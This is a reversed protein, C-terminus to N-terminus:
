WLGYDTSLETLIGIQLLFFVYDYSILDVLLLWAYWLNLGVTDCFYARHM